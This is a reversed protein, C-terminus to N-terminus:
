FPEVIFEGAIDKQQTFDTPRKDSIQREVRLKKQSYGLDLKMNSWAPLGQERLATMPVEFLGDHVLKMDACAEKYRDVLSAPSPNGRRTKEKYCACVTAWDNVLWSQVLGAPPYRNALYFDVRATAWYICQNRYATQDSTITQNNLDDIASDNGVISLLDDMDGSTCYLTTPVNTPPM